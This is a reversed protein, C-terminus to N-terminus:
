PPCTARLKDFPKVSRLEDNKLGNRYHM